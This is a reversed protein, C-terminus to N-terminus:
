PRVPSRSRPERSLRLKRAKFDAAQLPLHSAGTPSVPPGNQADCKRARLSRMRLRTKQRRRAASVAQGLGPLKGRPVPGVMRQHALVEGTHEYHELEERVSSLRQVASPVVETTPTLAWCGSSRREYGLALLEMADLCRRLPHLAPFAQRHADFAAPTFSHGCLICRWIGPLHDPQPRPRDHPIM